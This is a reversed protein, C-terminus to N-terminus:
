AVGATHVAVVGEMRERVEPSALCLAVTEFGIAGQYAAVYLPPSQNPPCLIIREDPGVHELDLISTSRTMIYLPRLRSNQRRLYRGLAKQAAGSLGDEILDIVLVAPSDAELRAVLAVLAESIDAGEGKFWDLAIGVRSDLGKDQELLTRADLGDGVTRDLGLFDAGPLAEALRKAFRTKGSALPGVIFNLQAPQEVYFTEGGWPWPLQFSTVSSSLLRMFQPLDDLDSIEGSMATTLLDDVAGAMVQLEDIKALLDQRHASLAAAFSSFDGNLVQEVQALSLGLNRLVVIRAAIEMDTPSYCRWGAETRSPAILSREEYLRLTKISVGLKRAAETPSLARNLRTM